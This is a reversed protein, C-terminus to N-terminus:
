YEAFKKQLIAYSENPNKYADTWTERFWEDQWAYMVGGAFGAEIINDFMLATAEVQGIQSVYPRPNGSKGKDKSVSTGFEVALVPMSYRAKLEDLRTEYSHNPYIQYSAFIGSALKETPHIDEVDIDAQDMDSWYSWSVLHLPGKYKFQEYSIAFNGMGALWAELPSANVTYLYDGEFGMVHTNNDNTLVIFDASIDEGLVYGMVYPAIDLNYKREKLSLKGHIADIVNRIRAFFEASLEEDFANQNSALFGEGLRMGQLLYLPKSSLLNYEFFAQYFEPPLIDYVRILNANMAAMSKLWRGYDTKTFGEEGSGLNVGKVTFDQWKKGQYIQIASGQARFAISRNSRYRHIVFEVVLGTILILVGLLLRLIIKRQRKNGM